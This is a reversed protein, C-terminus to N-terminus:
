KADNGYMRKQAIQAEMLSRNRADRAELSQHLMEKEIEKQAFEM